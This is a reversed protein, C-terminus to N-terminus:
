AVLPDLPPGTPTPWTPDLDIPAWALIFTKQIGADFAIRVETDEHTLRTHVVLGRGFKAHRVARGPTMALRLGETRTRREEQETNWEVQHRSPAAVEVPDPRRARGGLVARGTKPDVPAPRPPAPQPEPQSRDIWTDNVDCSYWRWGLNPWGYGVAIFLHAEPESKRIILMQRKAQEIAQPIDPKVEVYIPPDTMALFDPLYQGAASAFCHPEYTWPCGARDLHAAFAAELRSRMVVGNYTTQRAQQM